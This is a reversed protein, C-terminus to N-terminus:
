GVQRDIDLEQMVAMINKECEPIPDKAAAEWMGSASSCFRCLKEERKCFNHLRMSATAQRATV